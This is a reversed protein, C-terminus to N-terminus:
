PFTTEGSKESVSRSSPRLYRYADGFGPDSALPLSTNPIDALAVRYVRVNTCHNLTLNRDLRSASEKSPEFAWVSGGPGIQKAALISYLGINAGVDIVTMGSKLFAAAMAVEIKEFLWPIALFEAIEGEPHLLIQVGGPLEYAVPEHGSHRIHFMLHIAMRAAKGVFSHRIQSANSM